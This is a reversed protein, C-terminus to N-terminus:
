PSAKPSRPLLKRERTDDGSKETNRSATKKRSAPKIQQRLKKGYIKLKGKTKM